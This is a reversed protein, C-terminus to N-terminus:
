YCYEMLISIKKAYKEDLESNTNPMADNSQMFELFGDITYSYATVLNNKFESECYSQTDKIELERRIAQLEKVPLALSTRSVSAAVHVVENWRSFLDAYFAQDQISIKKSELIQKAELYDMAMKSQLEVIEKDLKIKREKAVDANKFDDNAVQMKEKQAAEAQKLRVMDEKNSKNIFYGILLVVIIFAGLIYKM